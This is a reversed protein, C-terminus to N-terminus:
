AAETADREATRQRAARVTLADIAAQSAVLTAPWGARLTFRFNGPSWLDGRAQYGRSEEVPYLVNAIRTSRLTFTANEAWLRVRLPPLPSDVLSIEYEMMQEDLELWPMEDQSDAVYGDLTTWMSAVIRRM